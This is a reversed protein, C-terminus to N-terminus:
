FYQLRLQPNQTCVTGEVFIVIVVDVSAVRFVVVVAIVVDCRAEGVSDVSALAAVDGLALGVIDSIILAVSVVNSPVELASGFVVAMFVIDGSVEVIASVMIPVAMLVRVAEGVFGFEDSLVSVVVTSTLGVITSAIVAFFDVDRPGEGTSGSTVRMAVDFVELALGDIATVSAVIVVRLAAEIFVSDDSLVLVVVKLTLGVINSLVVAAVVVDRPVEETSDSTVGMIIVDIASVSAAIVVCLAEVSNSADSLVAAVVCLYVDTICFVVVAEAVVDSPFDESGCVFGALVGSARGVTVPVLVAIDSSGEVVFCFGSVVASDVGPPLRVVASVTAAVTVADGPAETVFMPISDLVADIVGPPLGLVIAMLVVGSTGVVTSCLRFTVDVAFSPIGVTGAIAVVFLVNAEANVVDTIMASIVRAVCVGAWVMTGSVSVIM